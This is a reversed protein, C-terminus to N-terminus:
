PAGVGTDERLELKRRPEEDETSNAALRVKDWQLLQETARSYTKPVFNEPIAAEELDTVITAWVPIM